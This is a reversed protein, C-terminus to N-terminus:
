VVICVPFSRIFLYHSSNGCPELALWVYKNQYCQRFSSKLRKLRTQCQEPTRSFGLSALQSSITTFIHATRNVGKLDLQMKDAGWINILALTELDTWPM